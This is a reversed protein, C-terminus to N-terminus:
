EGQQFILPPQKCYTWISNGVVTCPTHEIPLDKELIKSVDTLELRPDLVYIRYRYWGTNTMFYFLGLTYMNSLGTIYFADLSASPHNICVTSFKNALKISYQHSWVLPAYGTNSYRRVIPDEYTLEALPAFINDYRPQEYSHPTEFPLQTTAFGAAAPHGGGGYKNAILNVPRSPDITFMSVRYKKINAFYSFLIRFPYNPYQKNMSEFLLSNTNKINCAIAPIGDILTTFAGDDVVTKNHVKIYNDIKRGIICIREVYDQDVLIQEVTRETKRDNPALDLMGLGYHFYLASLNNEWKWTDYDSIYQIAIPCPTDPYLYQWTLKAASVDKSRLGEPSFQERQAVDVVPHHDIWILNTKSAIQKLTDLSDFSFDTVFTFDGLMADDFTKGYNTLYIRTQPYKHKVLFACFKGDDDVHSICTVTQHPKIEIM